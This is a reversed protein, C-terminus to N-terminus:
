LEFRKKVAEHIYADNMKKQDDTSFLKENSKLAALTRDSILNELRRKTGEIQAHAKEVDSKTKNLSQTEQIIDSGVILKLDAIKFEQQLVSNQLRYEIDEETDLKKFDEDLGLITVTLDKLVKDVSMRKYHNHYGVRDFLGKKNDVDLILKGEKTELKFTDVGFLSKSQLAVSAVSFFFVSIGAIWLTDVTQFVLFLLFSMVGALIAYKATADAMTSSPKSLWVGLPINKKMKGAKYLLYEGHTVFSGILYTLIL